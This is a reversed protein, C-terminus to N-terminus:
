AGVWGSPRLATASNKASRRCANCRHASHREYEAKEGGFSIVPRSSIVPPPKTNRNGSVTSSTCRGEKKPSISFCPLVSDAGEALTRTVPQFHAAESHLLRHADIESTRSRSYLFNTSENTVSRKGVKGEEWACSCAAAETRGAGKDAWGESSSNSLLIQRFSLSARAVSKRRKAVRTLPTAYRTRLFAASASSRSWSM